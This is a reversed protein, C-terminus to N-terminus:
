KEADRVATFPRALAYRPVKKLTYTGEGGRASCHSWQGLGRGPSHVNVSGSPTCYGLVCDWVNKFM